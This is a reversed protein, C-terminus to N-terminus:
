SPLIVLGSLPTTLGHFTLVKSKRRKESESGEKLIEGFPLPSRCPGNAHLKSCITHHGRYQEPAGINEVIGTQRAFIIRV